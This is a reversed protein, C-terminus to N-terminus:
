PCLQKIVISQSKIIIFIVRLHSKGRWKIKTSILIYVGSKIPKEAYYKETM